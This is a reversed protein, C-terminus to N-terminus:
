KDNSSIYKTDIQLKFNAGDESKRRRRRIDRKKKRKRKRKKKLYYNQANAKIGKKKLYSKPTPM